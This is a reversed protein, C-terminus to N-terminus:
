QHAGSCTPGFPCSNSSYECIRINERILAKPSFVGQITAYELFDQLPNVCCHDRNHYARTTANYISRTFEGALIKLLSWNTSYSNFEPCVAILEQFFANIDKTKWITLLAKIFREIRRREQERRVEEQLFEEHREQCESQHLVIAEMFFTRYQSLMSNMNFSCFTFGESIFIDADENKSFEVDLFPIEMLIRKMISIHDTNSLFDMMQRLHDPSLNLFETQFFKRLSISAIGHTSLLSTMLRTLITKVLDEVSFKRKEQKHRPPPTEDEGERGRKKQPIPLNWDWQSLANWLNNSCDERSFSIWIAPIYLQDNPGSNFGLSNLLMLLKKIEDKSLTTEIFSPNNPNRLNKWVIPGRRLQNIIALLFVSRENMLVLAQVFASMNTRQVVLKHNKECLIGMNTLLSVLVFIPFGLASLTTTFTDMSVQTKMLGSVTSRIRQALTPPPVVPHEPQVPPDWFPGVYQPVFPSSSNGTSSKSLDDFVETGSGFPEAGQRRMFSELAFNKPSITGETM